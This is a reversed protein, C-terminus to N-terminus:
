KGREEGVPGRGLLGGKVMIYINYIYDYIYIHNEYYNKV